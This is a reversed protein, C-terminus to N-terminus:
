ATWRPFALERSRLAAKALEAADGEGRAIETLVDVFLKDELDHAEEPDRHAANAIGILRQHVHLVRM